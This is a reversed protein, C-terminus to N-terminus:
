VHVHKSVIAILEDFNTDPFFNIIDVGYQNLVFMYMTELLYPYRKIIMKVFSTSFMRTGNKYHVYNKIYTVIDDIHIKDLAYEIAVISHCESIIMLTFETTKFNTLKNWSLTMQHLTMFEFCHFLDQFFYKHALFDPSKYKLDDSDVSLAKDIYNNEEQWAYNNTCYVNLMQEYCKMSIEDCIKTILHPNLEEFKLDHKNYFKILLELTWKFQVMNILFNIISKKDDIKDFHDIIYDPLDFHQMLFLYIGSDRLDYIREMTFNVVSGVEFSEFQIIALYKFPYYSTLFKHLSGTLFCDYITQHFDDIFKVTPIIKMYIVRLHYRNVDEHNDIKKILENIADIFEDQPSKDSLSSSSLEDRRSTGTSNVLNPEDM